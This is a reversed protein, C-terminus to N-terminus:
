QRTSPIGRTSPVKVYGGKYCAIEMEVIEPRNSSQVAVRDGKRIKLTHLANVLRNTRSELSGYTMKSDRFILATANRHYCANRTIFLGPNM